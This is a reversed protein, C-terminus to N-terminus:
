PRQAGTCADIEQIHVIAHYIHPLSRLTPPNFHFINHHLGNRNSIDDLLDRLSIPLLGLSSLLTIQRQLSLLGMTRKIYTCSQPQRSVANM